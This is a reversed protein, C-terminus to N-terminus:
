LLTFTFSAAPTTILYIAKVSFSLYLVSPPVRLVLFDENNLLPLYDLSGYIVPWSSCIIPYM